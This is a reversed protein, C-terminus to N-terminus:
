RSDLIEILKAACHLDTVAICSSVIRGISGDVRLGQLDSQLPEVEGKKIEEPADLFARFLRSIRPELRAVTKGPPSVFSVAVAEFELRTFAPLM